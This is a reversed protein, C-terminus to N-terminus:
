RREEDDDEALLSAERAIRTVVVEVFVRWTRRDSKAVRIAEGFM